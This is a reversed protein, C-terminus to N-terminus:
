KVRSKRANTIRKPKTKKQKHRTSKLDLLHFIKIQM